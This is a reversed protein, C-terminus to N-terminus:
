HNKNNTKLVKYDSYSLSEIKKSNRGSYNKKFLNFLDEGEKNNWYELEIIRRIEVGKESLIKRVFSKNIVSNAYPSQLFNISDFKYHNSTLFLQFIKSFAEKDKRLSYHETEYKYRRPKIMECNFIDYEYFQRCIKNAWARTVSKKTDTEIKSPNALYNEHWIYQFLIDREKETMIENKM